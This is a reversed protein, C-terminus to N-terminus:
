CTMIRKSLLKVNKCELKMTTQSIEHKQSMHKKLSKKSLCSFNCKDCHFTDKNIAAKNVSDGKRSNDQTHKTNKHKCLIIQKNCEFNCEECKFVTKTKNVHINNIKDRNDEETDKVNAKVNGSATELWSSPLLLGTQTAQRLFPLLM